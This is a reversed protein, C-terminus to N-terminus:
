LGQSRRREAVFSSAVFGKDRLGRLLQPMFLALALLGALLAGALPAFALFRCPINFFSAPSACVARLASALAAAAVYGALADLAVLGLIVAALGRRLSLAVDVVKVLVFAAVFWAGWLARLDGGLLQPKFVFVLGGSALILLALNMKAFEPFKCRLWRANLKALLDLAAIAALGAVFGGIHAAWDIRPSQASFAFNLVFNILFFSAPLDTEGLVWLAFLAALLGFLGGSAGVTLFAHDHLLASAVGGAVIALLYILLFATAGVREELHPGLILLSMMNFGLHLPSAHLFGYSALRWYQHTPLAASTLAGHHALSDASPILGGSAQACLLYIVVNALILLFVASHPRALFGSTFFSM